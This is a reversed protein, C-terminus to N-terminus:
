KLSRLLKRWYNRAKLDISADWPKRREKRVRAQTRKIQTTSAQACVLWRQGCCMKFGPYKMPHTPRKLPMSTTGRCKPWSCRSSASLMTARSSRPLTSVCPDSCLQKTSTLWAWTSVVLRLQMKLGNRTPAVSFSSAGALSERKVGSLRSFVLCRVTFMQRNLDKTVQNCLNLKSISTRQCASRIRQPLRASNPSRPPDLPSLKDATETDKITNSKTAPIIVMEHAIGCSDTWRCSEGVGRTEAITPTLGKAKSTKEREENEDGEDGEEEESEKADEHFFETLYAQVAEAEGYLVLYGNQDMGQEFLNRTSSVHDEIENPQDEIKMFVLSPLSTPGASRTSACGEEAEGLSDVSVPKHLCIYEENRIFLYSANSNDADGAAKLTSPIVKEKRGKTKAKKNSISDTSASPRKKNRTSTTVVEELVAKKPPVRRSSSRPQELAAVDDDGTYEIDADAGEPEEKDTLDRFPPKSKDKEVTLDITSGGDKESSKGGKQKGKKQKSGEPAEEKGGSPPKDGQLRRRLVNVAEIAITEALEQGVEEERAAVFKECLLIIAEPANLVALAKCVAAFESYLLTETKKLLAEFDDMRVNAAVELRGDTILGTWLAAKEGYSATPVKKGHKVYYL